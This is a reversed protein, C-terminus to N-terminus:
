YHANSSPTQSDNLLKLIEFISKEVEVKGAGTTLTCVLPAIDTVCELGSCVSMTGGVHSWRSVGTDVCYPFM